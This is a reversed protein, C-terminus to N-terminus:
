LLVAEEQKRKRMLLCEWKKYGEEGCRFCRPKKKVVEQRRLEKVGCQIVQSKLVEFRNNVVKKKKQEERNRCKWTLHRFRGCKRCIRGERGELEVRLKALTCRQSLMDSMLQNYVELFM